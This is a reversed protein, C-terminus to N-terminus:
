NDSYLGIRNGEVDPFISFSGRGEAEIKTKPQIIKGGLQLIAALTFEMDEVQLSVLVGNESPIFGETWSIAGPYKGGEEPFFAM